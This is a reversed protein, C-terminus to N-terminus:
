DISRGLFRKELGDIGIGESLPMAALVELGTIGVQPVNDM